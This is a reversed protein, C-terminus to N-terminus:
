GHIIPSLIWRAGAEPSIHIQPPIESIRILLDTIFYGIYVLLIIVLVAAAIQMARRLKIKKRFDGRRGYTETFETISERGSPNLAPTISKKRKMAKGHVGSLTM